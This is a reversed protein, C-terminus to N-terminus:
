SALVRGLAARLSAGGEGVPEEQLLDLRARLAERTGDDKTSQWRVVEAALDILARSNANTKTKGV